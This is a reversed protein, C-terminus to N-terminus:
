LRVSPLAQEGKAAGSMPAIGALDRGTSMNDKGRV